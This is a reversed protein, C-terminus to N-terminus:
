SVPFDLAVYSLAYCKPRSVINVKYKYMIEAKSPCPFLYSIRAPVCIPTDCMCVFQLVYLYLCINSVRVQPNTLAHTMVQRMAAGMSSMDHLMTIFKDAEQIAGLFGSLSNSHARMHQILRLILRPMMASAVCLLDPPAGNPGDNRPNQAHPGHLYCFGAEKMVNMDGCDCAGGAQSRFMNFDHGKHNGRQFCEACLSMCPSIGCTRCRYAVFNATWVLGCTTANDYKRM